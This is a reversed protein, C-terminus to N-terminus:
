NLRYVSSDTLSRPSLLKLSHGLHAKAEKISGLGQGLEGYALKLGQKHFKSNRNKLFRYIKAVLLNSKYRTNLAAARASSVYLYGSFVSLLFNLSVFSNFLVLM